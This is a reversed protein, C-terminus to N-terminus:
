RDVRHIIRRNSIILVDSQILVRRSSDGQRPTIGLPGCETITDVSRRAVTNQTTRCGIQEVGGM